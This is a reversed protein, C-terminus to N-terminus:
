PKPNLPPHPPSLPTFVDLFFGEFARAPTYGKLSCAEKRVRSGRYVRFRAQLIQSEEDNLEADTGVAHVLSCVGQKCPKVM